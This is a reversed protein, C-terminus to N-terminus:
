ELNEGMLAKDLGARDAPNGEREREREIYIYIYLPVGCVANCTKCFVVGLSIDRKGELATYVICLTVLTTLVSLALSHIFGM